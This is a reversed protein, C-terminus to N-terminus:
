QLYSPFMNELNELLDQLGKEVTNYPSHDVTGCGWGSITTNSTTSSNVYLDANILPFM